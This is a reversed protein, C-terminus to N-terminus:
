GKEKLISQPMCHFYLKYYNRAMIGVHVKLFIHNGRALTWNWDLCLIGLDQFFSFSLTVPRSPCWPLASPNGYLLCYKIRQSAETSSQSLLPLLQRGAGAATLPDRKWLRIANLIKDKKKHLVGRTSQPQIERQNTSRHHNSINHIKRKETISRYTKDGSLSTQLYSEGKLKLRM